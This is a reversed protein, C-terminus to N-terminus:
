DAKHTQIKAQETCKKYNPDYCIHDKSVPKKWGAYLDWLDDMNYWTNTHREKINSFLIGNFPYLVNQKHTTWDIYM